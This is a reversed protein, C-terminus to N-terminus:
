RQTEAIISQLKHMSEVSCLTKKAGYHMPKPWIGLNMWCYGCNESSIWPAFEKEVVCIYTHYTFRKDRSLYQDFKETHIFEPLFGMEEKVERYLCEEISESDEKMGGWLGWTLHHSKHPARISFLCRQTLKSVILAGAAVKMNSM